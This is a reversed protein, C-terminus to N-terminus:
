HLTFLNLAICHLAFHIFETERIQMSMVCWVLYLLCAHRKGTGARGNAENFSFSDLGIEGGGGEIPIPIPTCHMSCHLISHM